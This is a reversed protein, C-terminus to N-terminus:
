PPPNESSDFREVISRILYRGAESLLLRARDSDDNGIEHIREESLKQVMDVL